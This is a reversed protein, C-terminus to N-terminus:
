LIGAKYLTNLVKLEARLTSNIPPTASTQFPNSARALPHGNKNALASPGGQKGERIVVAFNSTLTLWKLDRINVSIITGVM